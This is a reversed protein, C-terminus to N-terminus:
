TNKLLWDLGKKKDSLVLLKSGRNVAVNEAFKNIHIEKEIVLIKYPLRFLHAIKEGLKFRDFERWNGTGESLDIM